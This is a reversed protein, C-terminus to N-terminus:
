ASPRVAKLVLQLCRGGNWENIGPTFVADISPPFDLEDYIDAMGFGIADVSQSHRKLTLKLHRSGVVRANVVSLDRAGLLPEPNGYGTPELLELEKVLAHTVDALRISADIELSRFFESEDVEKKVMESMVSVFEPIHETKMTLGAAQKHGGFSLFLERCVALGRCMDFAPISRGSGRAIGDKMSLIFAPRGYKEAMRSAVIGLVGQHWGEAALIIVPDPESPGMREFAESYVQEEIRQRESNLGDLWVSLRDAEEENESLFLRVVDGSDGLRGAANIRPVLTFSLSGAKMEKAHIGCVEKLARIGAREGNHIYKLGEKLIIRNEGTLPVVDAVTGLAALDLLPLFDDGSFNPMGAAALAQAFKLAVGAGALTGPGDQANMLKPNVVADAAPLMFDGERAGPGSEPPLSPGGAALPEHHDTIIVDIGSERALSATEFSTIGCDVTIILRAGTRKAIDVASAHFGYGHIMRHPIFYDVDVGIKMLTYVIIATATLGDTDYDGHILIREKRRVAEKVREVANRMGPLDFPDSLATVGASLFNRVADATKIGRNILIQALIPSVSATRSLYGLFEPNTKNIFWRRQM